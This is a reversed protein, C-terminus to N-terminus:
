PYSHIELAGRPVIKYRCLRPILAQFSRYVFLDPLHLILQKRATLRDAQGLQYLRVMYSTLIASDLSVSPLFFGSGLRPLHFLDEKRRSRQRCYRLKKLKKVSIGPARPIVLKPVSKLIATTTSTRSWPWASSNESIPPLLTLAM